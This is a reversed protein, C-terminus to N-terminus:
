KVDEASLSPEKLRAEDFGKERISDSASLQIETYEKEIEDAFERISNGLTARQGDEDVITDAGQLLRDSRSINKDSPVSVKAAQLLLSEEPSLDDTPHDKTAAALNFASLKLDILLTNIRKQYLRLIGNSVKGFSTEVDSKERLSKVERKLAFLAQIKEITKEPTLLLSLKQPLSIGSFSIHGKTDMSSTIREILAKETAQVSRDGLKSCDEPKLKKLHHRISFLFAESAETTAIESPFTIGLTKKFDERGSDTLFYEPSFTQTVPSIRYAREFKEGLRNENELILEREDESLDIQPQTGNELAELQNVVTTVQDIVREPYLRQGGEKLSPSVKEPPLGERKEM